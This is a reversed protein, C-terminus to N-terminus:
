GGSEAYDRVHRRMVGRPEDDLNVLDIRSVIITEGAVEVEADDGVTPVERRLDREAPVGVGVDAVVPFLPRALLADDLQARYLVDNSLQVVVVEHREVRRVKLVSTRTM